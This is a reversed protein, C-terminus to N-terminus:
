TIPVYSAAADVTSKWHDLMGRLFVRHLAISDDLSPLLCHGNQLISEVLEATVESQFPLRGPVELGDSRKAIGAEEDIFWNYVGDSLNFCYSFSEPTVTLKASSGGSFLTDMTGLVEWNGPRKAEIWQRDLQETKVSQLTEGSFWALMDLFHVANCALGWSGGSVTLSLPSKHILKSQIAQHWPLMRRPTNVWAMSEADAHVHTAIEDLAAESQALVKELIWYRVRAHEAIRRVVQPRVGATTAVIVLDLLKPVTEMVQHLQVKHQSEPKVVEMWRDYARTLSDSDIDQVHIHLPLKCAALGQLYRSGLQGAGAILVKKTNVKCAKALQMSVV